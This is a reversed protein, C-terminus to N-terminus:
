NQDSRESVQLFLLSSASWVPDNNLTNRGTFSSSVHPCQHFRPHTLFFQGSRFILRLTVDGQNSLRRQKVTM